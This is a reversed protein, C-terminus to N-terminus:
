SAKKNKKAAARKARRSGELIGRLQAAAKPCGASARRRLLSLPNTPRPAM